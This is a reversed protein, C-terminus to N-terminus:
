LSLSSAFLKLIYYVKEQVPNIAWAPVILEQLDQLKALTDVTPVLNEPIELSPDIPHAQEEESSIEDGLHVNSASQNTSPARTGKRTRRTTMKRAKVQAQPAVAEPTRGRKSASKLSDLQNQIIVKTL